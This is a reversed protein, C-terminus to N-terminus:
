EVMKSRNQVMSEVIQESFTSNLASQLTSSSPVRAPPVRTLLLKWHMLSANQFMHWEAVTAPPCLLSLRVLFPLANAPSDSLVGLRRIADFIDLTLQVLPWVLLLENKTNDAFQKARSQTLGTPLIGVVVKTLISIM